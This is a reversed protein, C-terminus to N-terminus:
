AQEERMGIIRGDKDRELVKRMPKPETTILRLEGPAEVTVPAAGYQIAGEHFHTQAPEVTIPAPNVTIVPAPQERTALAMVAETLGLMPDASKVPQVTLDETVTKCKPCTFRYPATAYGHLHNCNLCRIGASKIVTLAPQAQDPDASEETDGVDNIPTLEDVELMGEEDAVVPTLVYNSGAPAWFNDQAKPNRNEIARWENDSLVGEQHQIQLAKARTEADGRLLADILFEFFFEEQEDEPLLQTTAEEEMRVLWPALTYVTFDISQHEINTFTANDLDGVMHPQMRYMRMIQRDQFKRGEIYQADKPPIGIEQLTLGEEMVITKGANASGRLEDMQTGLREIAGKSLTKPHTLVVSPRANNRMTSAGFDELAQQLGLAERHLTIPSFGVMGNSGLGPIHFIKGDPLRTKEGSTELWDFVKRGGDLKVEIRNPPLPWLQMRGMQDFAIESYSNGWAALHGTTTEKWVYPTMDPNPRRSLVRYLPHDTAREKGGNDTRRYLILPLTGLTEALVRICSMVTVIGMAQEQSMSTGSRTRSSWGMWQFFPSVSFTGDYSINPGGSASKIGKLGVIQALTGM